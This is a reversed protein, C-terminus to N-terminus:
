RGALMKEIRSIGEVIEADNRAFCLRVHGAGQEGFCSGPMLAVGAAMCEKTFERDTMGTKEINPFVYFAGDPLPCVIGDINNLQTCISQRKHKYRTAMEEAAHGYFLAAIGARQIFPPVCSSTMQLFLAMKQIIEPPAIIAGLRWGTMAFAKGFGNLVIVRDKCCDYMSPSHFEGEYISRSYVEDSLLYCGRQAALEYIRLVDGKRMVAGTPNHPSNIVILKTRDSMCAALECHQMRFGDARLLPCRVIKAGVFDFAAKYTPFYPDPIIVEDGPDLLTLAAYYIGINAGPTVLVQDEAPLFGRSRATAERIECVFDPLGMSQCYHTEGLYIAKTAADVVQQPTDFYTDGIEFHIMNDRKASEALVDFMPQGSLRKMRDAVM